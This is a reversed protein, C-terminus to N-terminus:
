AAKRLTGAPPTEAREISVLLTALRNTEDALFSAFSSASTPNARIIDLMGAVAGVRQMLYDRLTGMTGQPAEPLQEHAALDEVTRPCADKLDSYSRELGDALVTALVEPELREAAALAKEMAPSSVVRDFTAVASPQIEWVNNLHTLDAWREIHSGGRQPEWFPM